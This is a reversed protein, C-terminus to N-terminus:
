WNVGPVDKTGCAMGSPDPVSTSRSFMSFVKSTFTPTTCASTQLKRQTQPSCTPDAFKCCQNAPMLRADEVKVKARKQEYELNIHKHLDRTQFVNIPVMAM